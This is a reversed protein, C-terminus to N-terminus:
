ILLFEDSTCCDPPLEENFWAVTCVYRQKEDVTVQSQTINDYRKLVTKVDDAIGKGTLKVISEKLTWYRIFELEPIVANNVAELEDDTLVYRAVSQNLTTRVSEIDIGVPRNSVACAVAERCHSLNFHIDPFDIFYPKGHEGTVIAPMENIDFVEKIARKLLLWAAACQVQLSRSKYRLAEERRSPDLLPLASELDFEALNDDIFFLPLKNMDCFYLLYHM